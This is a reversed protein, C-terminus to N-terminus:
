QITKQWKEEGNMLTLIETFGDRVVCTNEFHASLEGDATVATWDDDLTEVEWTGANVMPEIALVMGNKLTAGDGPRGFNPVQPDEHLNRGIGHGVLARVVNFGNQEVYSQITYSIDGIHNGSVAKALGKYLSEETTIMLELAKESIEGVPFSRAVDGYFGDRYTGIDIKVLDGENLLHEKPIGHVIENNISVCIAGPFGNYGLFAARADHAEIFNRVKESITLTTIGPKIEDRAVEMSESALKCVARIKVIEGGSRINIM